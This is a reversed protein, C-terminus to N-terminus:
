DFFEKKIQDLFEFMLKNTEQCNLAKDLIDNETQIFNSTVLENRNHNILDILGTETIELHFQLAFIKERYIFAQNTCAESGFTKVAGDPIEFTDGHWQFVIQNDPIINFASDNNTINERTIKFWGIEKNKNQFVKVGLVQAILQSGLCIGLIVKDADIAKKIFQKEESLWPFKNENNVSMPGGMIILIDFDNLDPFHYEEYFNTKASEFKKQDIWDEICGLREYPVHHFSHIKM